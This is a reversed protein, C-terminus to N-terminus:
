GLLEFPTGELWQAIWESIIELTGTFLLLGMVIMLIGGVKMWKQSHKMINDMKGLFFSVLLFPLAFGLIYLTLYLAPPSGTSVGILLISSFIPGICPTWGAAFGLGIFFSSFYSTTRNGAMRRTDKLLAPIQLWEATVLGMVIILLGAVRQLLLSTSGTLLQSFFDGLYSISLGLSVYVVSVGILFLISHLMVTRKFEASQNEKVEKVSKGTIYSLYLPLLPLTCPSFFSLAGAGFAM